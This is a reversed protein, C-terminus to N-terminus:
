NFISMCVSLGVKKSLAGAEFHIWPEHRNEQTLAIIGFNAQDLQSSVEAEWTHGSLIDEKSMWPHVKQIVNQLFDHLATAIAKSRDKSWGIFVIM